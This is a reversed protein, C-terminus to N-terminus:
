KKPTYAAVLKNYWAPDATAKAELGAPDKTSWDQWSWQTRDEAGPTNDGKKDEILETVPQHAQIAALTKRLAAPSEKGLEEFTPRDKALFKGAAQAADLLAKVEEADKVAAQDKLAKLQAKLNDNERVQATVAALAEAESCSAALGLLMILKEKMITELTGTGGGGLPPLLVPTDNNENKNDRFYQPLLYGRTRAVERDAGDLLKENYTDYLAALGTLGKKAKAPDTGDIKTGVIIKDIFKGAEAEQPSLWTEDEMLKIIEAAPKGSKTSYALVQQTDCTEMLKIAKAADRKNGAIWMWCEHMMLLGYTNMWLEACSMAVFSAASAAIGDVVAIVQSSSSSIANAIAFAEGVDGGPSHIHIHIVDQKAELYKMASRFSRASFDWGFEGYLYIVEQTSGDASVQRVHPIQNKM